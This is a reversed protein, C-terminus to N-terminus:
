DLYDLLNMYVDIFKTLMTWIIQPCWVPSLINDSGITAAKSQNIPLFNGNFKFSFVILKMCVTFKLPEDGFQKFDEM